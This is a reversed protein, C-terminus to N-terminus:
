DIELLKQLGKIFQRYDYVVLEMAELRVQAIRVEEEFKCEICFSVRSRLKNIREEHRILDNSNTRILKKIEDTNM